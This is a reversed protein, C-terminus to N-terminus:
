PTRMGARHRLWRVCRYGCRLLTHHRREVSPTASLRAMLDETSTGGDVILRSLAYRDQGIWSWRDAVACSSDYGAERVAAIERRGHHGHPYAFSRVITGLGHELVRRSQVIEAAARASGIVDLQPHTQSHSGIEHGAASVDSLDQWTLMPQNSEGPIGLWESTGGVHSSVVYMTSSIGHTELSPIAHDAYDARGDDFTVLMPRQPMTGADIADILGSVTLCDYGVSRLASLHEDFLSPDICWRRYAPSATHGVSHYLLIPIPIATAAASM